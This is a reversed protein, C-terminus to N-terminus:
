RSSLDYSLRVAQMPQLRVSKTATSTMATVREQGTVALLAVPELRLQLQVTGELGLPADPFCYALEEQLHVAMHTTISPVAGSAARQLWSAMPAATGGSLAPEPADIKWVATSSPRPNPIAVSAM